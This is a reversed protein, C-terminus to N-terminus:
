MFVIDDDTPQALVLLRRVTGLADSPSSLPSTTHQQQQQQQQQQWILSRAWLALIMNFDHALATETSIQLLTIADFM